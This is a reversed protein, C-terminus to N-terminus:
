RLRGHVCRCTVVHQTYVQEFTGPTHVSTKAFVATAAALLIHGEAVACCHCRAVLRGKTLQEREMALMLLRAGGTDSAAEAEGDSRRPQLVGRHGALMEACEM